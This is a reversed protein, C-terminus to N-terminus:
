QQFNKEKDKFKIEKNEDDILKLTFKLVDGTNKTIFNYSFHKADRNDGQVQFNVNVWRSSKKIENQNKIENLNVVGITKYLKGNILGYKADMLGGVTVFIKEMENKLASSVLLGELSFKVSNKKYKEFMNQIKYNEIKIEGPNIEAYDEFNQQGRICNFDINGM